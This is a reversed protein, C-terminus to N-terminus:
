PALKRGCRSCWYVTVHTEKAHPHTSSPYTVWQSAIPYPHECFLAEIEAVGPPPKETM